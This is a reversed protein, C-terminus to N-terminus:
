LNDLREKETGYISEAMDHDIKCYGFRNQLVPIAESRPFAKDGANREEPLIVIALFHLVSLPIKRHRSEM